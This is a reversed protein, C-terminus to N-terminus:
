KLTTISSLHSKKFTDLVTDWEKTEFKVPVSLSAYDTPHWDIQPYIGFVARPLVQGQELADLASQDLEYGNVGIYVSQAWAILLKLQERCRWYNWRQIELLEYTIYKQDSPTKNTLEIAVGVSEERHRGNDNDEYAGQFDADKRRFIMLRPFLGAKSYACIKRAVDPVNKYWRADAGRPDVARDRTAALWDVGVHFTGAIHDLAPRTMLDLLKNADGLASLSFGHGAMIEATKPLDLQHAEFVYFFRDRMTKLRGDVTGITTEAVGDLILGILSQISTNLAESQCQLFHRTSPKLRLSTPTSSPDVAETRTATTGKAVLRGLLSELSMRM